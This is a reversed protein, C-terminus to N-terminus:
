VLLQLGVLAPQQHRDDLLVRTGLLARDRLLPQLRQTGRAEALHPERPHARELAALPVVVTDLPRREEDLVVVRLVVRVVDVGHPPIEVAVEAHVQQALVVARRRVVRVRALAVVVPVVALHRLRGTQALRAASTRPPSHSSLTREHAASLPIHPRSSNRVIKLFADRDFPSQRRVGRLGAATFRPNARPLRVASFAPQRGRPKRAYHSRPTSCDPLENPEYGLPRPNLDRGRLWYFRAQFRSKM